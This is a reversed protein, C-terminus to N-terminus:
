DENLKDTVSQTAANNDGHYYYCKTDPITYYSDMVNREAAWEKLTQAIRRDLDLVDDRRASSFLEDCDYLDTATTELMEIIEVGLCSSLMEITVIEGKGICVYDNAATYDYDRLLKQAIADLESDTPNEPIDCELDLFDNGSDRNFLYFWKGKNNMAKVGERSGM